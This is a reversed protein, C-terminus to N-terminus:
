KEGFFGRDFEGVEWFGDSFIVFLYCKLGLSIFCITWYM